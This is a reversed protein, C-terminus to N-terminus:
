DIADFAAPIHCPPDGPAILICDFRMDLAADEPNSALWIAAARAIRRQQRQGVAYAADDLRARAKVEVFILLDARRAVIDIEGAGSRFRRACIAFGQAELFRAAQQEASLGTQFSSPRIGTEDASASM